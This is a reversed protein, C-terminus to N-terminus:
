IGLDRFGKGEEKRLARLVRLNVADADRKGKMEKPTELYMPRDRFRRDGCCPRFRGPRDPGPRHPRPPRDALGARGPQRQPSLRPDARHRGPSRVGADDQSLGAPDGASLRRRLRPLHRLLRGAAGPQAGRRPHRCAARLALRDVHGGRGHDGAPLRGAPLPRATSKM